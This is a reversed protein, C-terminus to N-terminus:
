VTPFRHPTNKTHQFPLFSYIFIQPLKSKNRKQSSSLTSVQPAPQLLTLISTTQFHTSWARLIKIFELESLWFRLLVFAIFLLPFPPLSPLLAFSVEDFCTVAYDGM